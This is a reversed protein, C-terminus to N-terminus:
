VLSSKKFSIFDLSCQETIATQWFRLNSLRHDKWIKNQTKHHFVTNVIISLWIYIFNHNTFLHGRSIVNLSTNVAPDFKLDPSIWSEIRSQTKSLAISDWTLHIMSWHQALIVYTESFEFHQEIQTQFHGNDPDFKIGSQLHLPCISLGKIDYTGFEDWAFSQENIRCVTIKIAWCGNDRIRGSDCKRKLCKIPM